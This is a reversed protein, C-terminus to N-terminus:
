SNQRPIKCNWQAIKQRVEPPPAALATESRQRHKGSLAHAAVGVYERAAIQLRQLRTLPQSNLPVAHPVVNFGVSQFVLSSRWIHPEDTVLLISKVGYEQLLASSFLANEETSQSCEEGSLFSSPVGSSQLDSVMEEADLMGSAFIRPARKKQWLDWVAAMRNDRQRSGRGLVVIADVAEGSDAPVGATLGQVLLSTFTPSTFVVIAIFVAAM